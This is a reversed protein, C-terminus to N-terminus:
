VSASLSFRVVADNKEVGFGKTISLINVFGSFHAELYRYIAFFPGFLWLDANKIGIEHFARNKM